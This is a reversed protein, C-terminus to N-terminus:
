LSGEAKGEAEETKEGRAMESGADTVTSRSRSSSSISFSALVDGAAATRAGAPQLNGGLSDPVPRRNAKSGVAGPAAARGLGTLAQDAPVHFIGGGETLLAAPSPPASPLGQVQM